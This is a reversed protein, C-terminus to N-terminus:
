FEGANKGNTRLYNVAIRCAEVDDLGETEEDVVLWGDYGIDRLAAFVSEIDLTGRGLPCFSGDAALDKVHVNVIHRAFKRIAAGLDTSGGKAAHACDFTLGCRAPDLCAVIRELDAESEFLGNVHNHLSARPGRGRAAAGIRNLLEGIERYRADSADTRAVPACICLEEAGLAGAFDAVPAIKDVWVGTDNGGPYVIVGARIMPALDGFLAHFQEPDGQAPGYQHPKAQVGEFGVARAARFLEVAAEPSASPRSIAYKM